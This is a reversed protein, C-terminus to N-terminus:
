RALPAAIFFFPPKPNLALSLPAHRILSIPSPPLSPPLRFAHGAREPSSGLNLWTVVSRPLSSPPHSPLGRNDWPLSPPHAPLCHVFSVRDRFAIALVVSM